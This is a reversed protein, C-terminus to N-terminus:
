LDIIPQDEAQVKTRKDMWSSDSWKYSSKYIKSATGPRLESYSPMLILKKSLPKQM